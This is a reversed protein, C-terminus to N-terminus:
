VSRRAIMQIPHLIENRINRLVRTLTGIDAIINYLFRM